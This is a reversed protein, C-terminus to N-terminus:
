AVGLLRALEDADVAVAEAHWDHPNAGNLYGWAVAIVPMGARHAAEVDRADDGVYICDHAEVGAQSCAHWLPEPDPKRQPLTDGAVLAALRSRMHLYDLLPAALFGPKNTVVGWPIDRRDLTDLLTDIGDFLRSAGDLMGAYIELYRPVLDRLQAEDRGPFSASLIALSGRSVRARVADFPAVAVHQEACLTELAAYLDQASDVLTGDLDFLVCAPPQPLLPSM